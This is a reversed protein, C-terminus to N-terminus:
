HGLRKVPNRDGLPPLSSPPLTDRPQVAPAARPTPAAAAPAALPADHRKDRGHAERRNSGALARGGSEPRHDIPVLTATLEFKGPTGIQIPMQVDTTGALHFRYTIQHGDAPRIDVLPTTGLRRNDNM